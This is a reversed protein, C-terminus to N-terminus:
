AGQAAEPFPFFSVLDMSLVLGKIDEISLLEEGVFTKLWIVVKDKFNLYYRGSM